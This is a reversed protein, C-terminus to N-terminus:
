RSRVVHVARGVLAVRGDDLPLSRIKPGWWRALPWVQQPHLSGDRGVRVAHVATRGSSWEEVPLLALRQDPLYTFTRPDRVVAETGPGFGRTDVRTVRRLDHLDFTARPGGV